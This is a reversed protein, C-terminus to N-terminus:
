RGGNQLEIWQEDERGSLFQKRILDNQKQPEIVMTEFDGEDDLYPISAMIESDIRDDFGNKPKHIQTGIKMATEQLQKMEVMMERIEPYVVIGKKLAARYGYYFRHKSHMDRIGKGWQYRRIPYGKNEMEMNTRYAQSCDDVVITKVDYRELLNPISHEFDPSMLLNEDFDLQAFQFLTLLKGAKKTKVTIATKSKTQGYDLGIVCPTKRYKYEMAITKDVAKDVDMSDFFSSEDATFLANYEQDFNLLTGEALATKYLQKILRIQQIDECHKWYIWYRSYEHDKHKEYPDFTEFFYGSNGCWMARGKRMVFLRHFPVTLCFVDGSYQVKKPQSFKDYTKIKSIRGKNRTIRFCNNGAYLINSKYGLKCCIEHIDLIMQPYKADVALRGREDGDGLQYGDIFLTLLPKSLNKFWTPLGEKFNKVFEVLQISSIEIRQSDECHKHIRVNFHKGFVENTLKSIYDLKNGNKQTIAVLKTSKRNIVHGDAYWIGLWEMLSESPLILDPITQFGKSKKFTVSPITIYELYDGKHHLTKDFWVDTNKKTLYEAEFFKWNGKQFRGWMKHNPTVSFNIQRSEVNIMEGKYPNKIIQLPHNFFEKGNDDKCLILDNETINEFFKWGNYTMVMTEKDYCQGNPTSSIVIKGGTKSVTPAIADRFINDDIFAGEDVIVVDFPYGRIADTPPFCQITCKNKFTITTANNPSAKNDDIADTFYTNNNKFDAMRMIRKISLLVQKAQDNSKSVIGVKTNEFISSPYLNEIACHIAFIEIATSVGTQRSKCVIVRKEDHFAKWFVHQYRYPEIGLTHISFQTTRWSKPHVGFPDEKCKVIEERYKHFM